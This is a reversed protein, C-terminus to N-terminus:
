VNLDYILKPKINVRGEAYNSWDYNTIRGEKKLRDFLRTGPYPTVISFSAEDLGWDYIAQLTNDFIDITDHDM